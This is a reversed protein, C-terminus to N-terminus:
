QNSATVPIRTTLQITPVLHNQPQPCSSFPQVIILFNKYIQHSTWYNTHSCNLFTSLSLVLFTTHIHQTIHSSLTYWTEEHLLRLPKIQKKVDKVSWYVFVIQQKQSWAIPRVSVWWKSSPLVDNNNCHNTYLVKRCYMFLHLWPSFHNYVTTHYMNAGSM